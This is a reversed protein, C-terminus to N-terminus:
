CIQSTNACVNFQTRTNGLYIHVVRRYSAASKSEYVNIDVLFGWKTGRIINKDLNQHDIRNGNSVVLSGHVSQGNFPLERM